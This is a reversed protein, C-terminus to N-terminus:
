HEFPMQRVNANRSQFTTDCKLEIGFLEQIQQHFPQEVWELETIKGGLIVIKDGTQPTKQHSSRTEWIWYWRSQMIVLVLKHADEEPEFTLISRWLTFRRVFFRLCLSV